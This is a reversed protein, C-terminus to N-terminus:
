EALQILGLAANEPDKLVAFKGVKELEMSPMLIEAGLELAKKLQRDFNEVKFYVLWHPPITGMEKTLQYMGGIPIDGIKFTTYQTGGFNKTISEWGFVNNYFEKSKETDTTGLENWCFTNFENKFKSGIHQEAQWIGFVAGIPDQIIALRGAKPIDMAEAIIKGGFNEVTKLISDVSDVAIYNGWHPPVGMKKMEECLAYCACINENKLQFMSYIQNNGMDHDVYSWGFLKSYFTKSNATNGTALEIWCFEGPLYKLIEQIIEEL